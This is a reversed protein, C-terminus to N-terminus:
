QIAEHSSMGRDDDVTAACCQGIRNMHLMEFSHGGTELLGLHQGPRTFCCGPL